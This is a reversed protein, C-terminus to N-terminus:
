VLPAGISKSPLTPKRRVRLAMMARALPQHLSVRIYKENNIFYCVVPDLLIYIDAGLGLGLTLSNRYSHYQTLM